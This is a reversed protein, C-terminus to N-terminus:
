FELDSGASPASFEQTYKATLTAFQTMYEMPNSNMKQAWYGGASGWDAANMEYKALVASADMGQAAGASMHAQIKIWDEFSIPDEGAVASGFGAEMSAGLAQGAAAFKGQGGAVFAQGYVTAITATSDRSMRANWEANVEDWLPTEVGMEALVAALDQGQSLRANAGAWMEMSIGKFPSLEDKLAEKNKEFQDQLAAQTQKLIANHADWAKKEAKEVRAKFYDYHLEDRFGAEEIEDEHDGDEDTRAAEIKGMAAKATDYDELEEPSGLSYGRMFLYHEDNLIGHEDMAEEWDDGDDRASDMEDLLDDLEDEAESKLPWRVPVGYLAMLRRYAGDAFRNLDPVHVCNWESRENYHKGIWVDRADEDESPDFDPFSLDAGSAQTYDYDDWDVDALFEQIKKAKEDANM